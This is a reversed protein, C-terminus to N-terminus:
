EIGENSVMWKLNEVAEDWTQTCNECCFIMYSGTKDDVTVGYNTPNDM